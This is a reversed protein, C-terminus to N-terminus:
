YNTYVLKSNGFILVRYQTHLYCMKSKTLFIFYCSDIPVDFIGKAEDAAKRADAMRKADEPNMQPPQNMKRKRKKKAEGDDDVLALQMNDVKVLAMSEGGATLALMEQASIAKQKKRRPKKKKRNPDQNLKRNIQKAVADPVTLLNAVHVGEPLEDGEDASEESESSLDRSEMATTANNDGFSLQPEVITPPPVAQVPKSLEEDFPEIKVRPSQSDELVNFRLQYTLCFNLSADM